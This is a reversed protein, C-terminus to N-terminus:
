EENEQKVGTRNKAMGLIGGRAKGGGRGVEGEEKKQEMNTM